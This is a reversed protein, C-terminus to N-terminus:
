ADPKEGFVSIAEGDLLIEGWEADVYFAARTLHIKMADINSQDQEKPKWRLTIERTEAM